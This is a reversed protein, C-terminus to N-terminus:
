LPIGRPWVSSTRPSVSRFDHARPQWVIWDRRKFGRIEPVEWIIPRMQDVMMFLINPTEAVKENPM